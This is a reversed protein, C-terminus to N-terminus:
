SEEIICIDSLVWSFFINFYLSSCIFSYSFSCLFRVELEGKAAVPLKVFDDTSVTFSGILHNRLTSGSSVSVVIEHHEFMRFIWDLEAWM